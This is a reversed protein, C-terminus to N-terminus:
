TVESSNGIHLLSIPFVQLAENIILQHYFGAGSFFYFDDKALESFKKAERDNIHM